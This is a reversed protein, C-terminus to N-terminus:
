SVRATNAFLVTTCHLTKKSVRGTSVTAMKPVPSCLGDRRGTFHVDLRFGSSKTCLYVCVSVCVCVCVCACVCRTVSLFLRRWSHRAYMQLSATPRRPRTSDVPARRHSQVTSTPRQHRGADFCVRAQRTPRAARTRTVSKV